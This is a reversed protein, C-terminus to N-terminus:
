HGSAFSALTRDGGNTSSTPGGLPGSAAPFAPFSSSGVQLIETYLKVIQPADWSLGHQQLGTTINNLQVLAQHFWKIVEERAPWSSDPPTQWYLLQDKLDSAQSRHM